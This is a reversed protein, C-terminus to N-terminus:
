NAIHGSFLNKVSSHAAIYLGVHYLAAIGASYSAAMAANSVVVQHSVLGYVVPFRMLMEDLAVANAVPVMNKPSVVEKVMAVSISFDLHNTQGSTVIYEENSLKACSVSVLIVEVDHAEPIKIMLDNTAIASNKGSM